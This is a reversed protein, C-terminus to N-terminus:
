NREKPSTLHPKMVAKPMKKEEMTKVNTVEKKGSTPQSVSTTKVANPSYPKNTVTGDSVKLVTKHATASDSNTVPKETLPKNVNNDEKITTTEAITENQADMAEKLLKEVNKRLQVSDIKVNDTQKSAVVQGAYQVDILRYKDFGTKSLVEKYFTFLRHFKQDINEGDGLKIIHNGVMPIMEFTREPTIDIQAAQAMWFSDAYIFQAMNKVENLLISDKSNLVKKGPFGTF